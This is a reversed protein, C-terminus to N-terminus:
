ATEILMISCENRDSASCSETSIRRMVGTRSVKTSWTVDIVGLPGFLVDDAFQFAPEGTVKTIIASLLHSAWSCHLGCGGGDASLQSVHTSPNKAGPGVSGQSV